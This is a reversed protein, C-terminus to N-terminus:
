RKPATGPRQDSRTSPSPTPPFLDPGAGCLTPSRTSRGRLGCALCCKEPRQRAYLFPLRHARHYGRYSALMASIIHIGRRRGSPRLGAPLPCFSALLLPGGRHPSRPSDACQAAACLARRPSRPRSSATTRGRIGPEATIAPSHETDALVSFSNFPQCTGRAGWIGAVSLRQRRLPLGYDLRRSAGSRRGLM